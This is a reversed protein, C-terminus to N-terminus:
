VVVLLRFLQYSDCWIDYENSLAVNKWDEITWNQHTWAFQLKRKKNNASLLLVQHPRRCGCGMQKLTWPIVHESISKQMGQSCCTNIQAITAKTILETQGNEERVEPESFQSDSLEVTEVTDVHLYLTNRTYMIRQWILACLFLYGVTHETMWYSEYIDCDM